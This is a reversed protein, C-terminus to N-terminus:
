DDSYNNTYKDYETDSMSDGYADLYYNRYNDQYNEITNSINHYNHNSCYKINYLEDEYDDYCRGSEKERKKAENKFENYAIRAEKTPYSNIIEHENETKITPFQQPYKQNLLLSIWEMFLYKKDNSKYICPAWKGYIDSQYHYARVLYEDLKIFCIRKEYKNHGLYEKSLNLCYQAIKTAIEDKGDDKIKFQPKWIYGTSSMKTRCNAIILINYQKKLNLNEIPSNNKSESYKDNNTERQSYYKTKRETITDLIKNYTQKFFTEMTHSVERYTIKLQNLHQTMEIPLSNQPIFSYIRKVQLIDLLFPTDAPRIYLPNIFYINM